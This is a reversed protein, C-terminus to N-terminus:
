IDYILKSGEFDIHVNLLKRTTLSSLFKERSEIPVIFLIFGAGGAGLLKAGLAGNSLGLGILEDIDQSSAFTNSEKKLRWSENLRDGLIGLDKFVSDDIERALELLKGLAKDSKGNQNNVSAQKNLMEGASRTKGIRVLYMSENLVQVTQVDLNLPNVTVSEDRLFHIRNLGGYAAAYQDQKGILQKLSEIEIECAETAIEAKSLNRGSYISILKSLGVTFSSSSGLGTGSPIDSSVGIDVGTIQHKILLERFINHKIDQVNKVKEVTSYKLLIEDSEFMPHASLYIYRNIAASIVMGDNQLYFSPIDTGGGFFSVRLPTRVIIM